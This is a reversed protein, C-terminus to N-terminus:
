GVRKKRTKARKIQALIKKIEKKHRVNADELEKREKPRPSLSELCYKNNRVYSRLIRLQGYPGTGQIGLM